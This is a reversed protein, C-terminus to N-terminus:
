TVAEANQYPESISSGRRSRTSRSTAVRPENEAAASASANVLRRDALLDGGELALGAGGEDVTAHSRHAQGVGAAGQHRVGLRHEGAQVLGLLLEPLNGPQAPAAQPQGADGGGVGREDGPGDGLEAPAVGVDVQGHDVVV